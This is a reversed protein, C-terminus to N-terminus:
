STSTAQKDQSRETHAQDSEVTPAAEKTLEKTTETAAVGGDEYISLSEDADEASAAGAATVAGKASPGDERSADVEASADGEASAADAMIADGNADVVPTPEQAAVALLTQTLGNPNAGAQFGHQPPEPEKDTAGRSPRARQKDPSQPRSSPERSAANRKGINPSKSLPPMLLPRHLSFSHSRLRPSALLSPSELLPIPVEALLPSTYSSSYIHRAKYTAFDTRGDTLM